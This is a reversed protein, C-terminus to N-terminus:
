FEPLSLDIKAAILDDIRNLVVAVVGSRNKMVEDNTFHMVDYGLNILFEDRHKDEATRSAHTDGDIEIVLKYKVCAFDVIYPDIPYQRRFRFDREKSALRLEYWMIQETIPANRRLMKARQHSETNPTNLRVPKNM